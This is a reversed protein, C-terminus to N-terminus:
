KTKLEIVDRVLLAITGCVAVISSFYSIKNQISFNYAFAVIAAIVLLIDMAIRYKLKM